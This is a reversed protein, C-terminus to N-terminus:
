QALARRRLGDAPQFRPAMARALEDLAATINALGERRAFQTIGGTFPPFGIGMVLGLDLDREDQVIGEDLCRYAEDVLPYILRQVLETRSATRPPVGRQQMLQAVVARGPGPSKGDKGYIGGGTKQGLAKAAVMAAFLECPVMRQPFAAQMVASVKAAVDFGVEDILRCPGM